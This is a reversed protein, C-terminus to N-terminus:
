LKANRGIFIMGCNAAIEICTTDTTAFMAVTTVSIADTTLSTANTTGLRKQRMALQRRTETVCTKGCRVDIRLWSAGTEASMADIMAFTMAITDFTGVIMGFTASM